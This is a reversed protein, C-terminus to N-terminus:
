RLFIMSEWSAGGRAKMEVHEKDSFSDEALVHDSKEVSIRQTQSAHVTQELM